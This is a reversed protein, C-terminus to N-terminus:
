LKIVDQEDWNILKNAYDIDHFEFDTLWKTLKKEAGSINVYSKFKRALSLENILPQGADLDRPHIYSMVYDSNNTIKKILPYPFIRFYGGGSYIINKGLISKPSIPFEKLKVGNYEIISPKSSRYSSMGGHAHSSPFVSCDIEIGCDALIEFAWLETERISFGPARFIRVKKGSIDELLKISSSVDERFVAPSQQYVLQHNMTHSAIEYKQSIKRVIEPYKQAIWGIVFFTAKTDTKELIDLIRDVNNHIRCEYNDWEKATKTSDCDLLHFWEEIDFTLINM